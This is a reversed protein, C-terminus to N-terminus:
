KINAGSYIKHFADYIEHNEGSERFVIAYNSKAFWGSYGLNASGTIVVYEDTDGYYFMTDKSHTKPGVSLFGIEKLWDYEPEGAKIEKKIIFGCDNTETKNNTFADYIRGVIKNTMINSDLSYMNMYCKIQGQTTNLKEIYKAYPNNEVDYGNTYVQPMPLFYCEFYEDKYNLLNEKHANLVEDVFAYRNEYCDFTMDFYRMYAEYIKEHNSITYGSHTWDKKSTPRYSTEYRDVNATMSNIANHYEKGDYDIYDSVLLSKSHMQNSMTEAINWKCKRVELFDSVKKTKDFSCKDNMFSQFWELTANEEIVEDRHYILRVKIGQKAAKVFSYAVRECDDTYNRKLTTTKGYKRSSPNYYCATDTEMRYIAYDITVDENPYKKKYNISKNVLECVAFVPHGDRDGTNRGYIEVKVNQDDVTVFKTALAITSRQTFTEYYTVISVVIVIISIISFGIRVYWNKM